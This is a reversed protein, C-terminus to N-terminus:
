VEALAECLGNRVDPYALSLKLDRKIKANSIAKPTTLLRIIERSVVPSRGGIRALGQSWWAYLGGLWLPLPVPGRTRLLTALALLFDRWLVPEDDAVNWLSIRDLSHGPAALITRVVDDVHVFSVPVAGSGFWPCFGSRLRRALEDVLRGGRGYVEGIRLIVLRSDPRQRALESAMRELRLKVVGYPIIPRTPAEEEAVGQCVGYVEAASAIIWKRVGARRSWDFLNRMMRIDSDELIRLSAGAYGGALHFVWDVAPLGQWPSRLDCIFSRGPLPRRAVSYVKYGQAEAAEVLRGGIFGGAGTVLVSTM